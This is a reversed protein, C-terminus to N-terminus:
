LRVAFWDVTTTIVTDAPRQDDTLVNFLHDAGEIAHLTVDGGASATPAAKANGPDVATDESGVILLLPGAYPAVDTTDIPWRDGETTAGSWSAVARVAQDGSAVSAAVPSGQGFGLVGLRGEIVEGRAVLWDLAARADEVPSALTLGTVLGDDQATGALGIRLSAYGREALRSALREYLNGVEDRSSGPGPIM